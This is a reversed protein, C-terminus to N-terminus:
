IRRLGHSPKTTRSCYPLTRRSALLSFASVPVHVQLDLPTTWLFVTMKLVVLTLPTEGFEWLVDDSGEM